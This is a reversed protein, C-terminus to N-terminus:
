HHSCPSQSARVTQFSTVVDLIYSGTRPTQAMVTTFLASEPPKRVAM